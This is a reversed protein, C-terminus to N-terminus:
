EEEFEISGFAKDLEDRDLLALPFDSPIYGGAEPSQCHAILARLTAVCDQALAEVTARQHLNESYTWNLHLCGGTVFGNVELLHSRSGRPSHLLGIPEDTPVFLSSNPMGRDLQGLYLFSVEAQPLSRLKETIAGNESLYRLIGYGIGENPICRLQEKVANLVADPHAVDELDLLVPYLTTFWGVTRSLDINPFIVERGRGELDVLLSREGTWRAFAQVLATLLVGDIQTRYTAPVEQLLVETEDISLEVSVTRASVVTNACQPYDVPLPSVWRRPETLWYDLEQQLVPSQAYVKLHKAWQKFSTTKPPLQIAKGQSLQNYATQLDELLIRWSVVDVALHHIVVLLRDPKQGGLNFLAVRVLPGESLNLSTQLENAAAEIAREQEVEPLASLDLRSFPVTEGSGAIAQQWSLQEQVFRLRLADHHQLLYCVVQELLTPDIPQGVKLLMAQNWHHPDALKQEKFWHQIPTLPLLGMVLGQEAQITDITDVVAALEAITQHEFVQKPTFQLGAQNSRAIIQISLVSDGGLEFFNDYIGVPEIGLLQQWIDTMTQEVETRPAVYTSQLNPRSHLSPTGVQKSHEPKQLSQSKIWQDIRAQLDGTSIAIQTVRDLSLVRKFVEVGEQATMVLEAAKSTIEPIADPTVALEAAQATLWNDWNVSLWPLSNTQNHKYVFADTFLHTAPYAAMGLVGLISSLSSVLLCFDLNKGQLVKELVFLGQVTPRFQEECESRGIAQINGVLKLGAAHVVGHIEGFSKSAQAIVGLMQNEDTVDAGIVLVEAGLAELEQVKRLKRSVDDRDGHTALWQEWEQREPLASRGILILKAQVAQALHEAVQLGIGGLGGTILYVGKERLRRRNTISEDLHVPEFTQVWRHHGRYAVVLGSPPVFLEAILQDIIQNSHDAGLEPLVVDISQCTIHPYEQPIVKCAGLVTAKEPCLREDGTVEHVNNTVVTIAINNVINHQGLAQVLFLLSYFGLNQCKEFFEIGSRTEATISWLHAIAQPTKNLTRLAQLLRDYDERQQPNIAYVRDSLKIFQEGLMVTIVDQGEQELRNALQSGVGCADAFVLWCSQQQTLEGASPSLVMSRKWSPLYFWDAVNPKKGLTSQSHTADATKAQPEIWYRQREFPYTPLPLRHRREQDYFGSWDVQVGVLWLRGLTNLLFALDSQSDKPHRLSALVVVGDVKQALAFNSLTRGPGVELLIRNPEQVLHAMGQAFQVTHRLHKGWYSPDTAQDATIWTGTLNSVFPIKAVKLNVKKVQKTFEELIPEMMQSHFAHSTHLRSCGIGRETLQTQLTDIAETTGSVVCVSPSNSAALSVNEKLFPQVEQEPLSISLMAGAPLQQMLRGRAAVLELAEELSFVGALCAAVYEGISHGITAQPRVGWAEWLQSLAYEIVFLAPQTIETQQLHQAAEETKEKSPYLVQRLDLGLHPKLLDCCRDVCDRFTPENQYLEWGMNAYQAGQGPFMFVVSRHCPEQFHTVVRQPNQTELATVADDITECVVMRRYSLTKRGVQLTYAVDALNLEPQQKLCDVLNATATELASGTKASLVLLKQARGPESTEVTPAEELIVHANTGGIGFSSVGARRPTNSKKWESLTSNVYFPSNAFDIEPNPVEFHLSPPLLQHKLALVTKILSTVGAAAGLHGVNTKVSGIACFNKKHTSAHFVKKLAAIEIPDGLATGTGHAEIYSITEPEVGALALAEAIVEAQGDVSPATYGIKLAGDNNIASSKIVAHICDGDAIADELRKLVVIGVGNGNVTGRAKADFARCHGDPSLVGGTEYRYGTKHPVSISVGGALAVDSEGNLLSQCAFHVAVLSTSCATQVTVSPGKLNLKYSVHTSLFDKDNGILTQFSTESESFNRNQYLNYLFYTNLDVGAYVGIRGAHTQSNYGASELVEWAHELFLRHQPDMMEAERPSFGFFSADFLEIDNLIAGAKVYNADNWVACDIGSSTLEEDTFFSISEVGDQLNQWFEAINKAGPFRGAMGVIAIQELHNFADSSSM